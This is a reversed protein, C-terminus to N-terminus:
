SRRYKSKTYAPASGDAASVDSGCVSDSHSSRSARKAASFSRSSRAAARAASCRREDDEEERDDDPDNEHGVVSPQEVAEGRGGGGGARALPIPNPKPMSGRSIMAWNCTFCSDAVAVAFEDRAADKTFEAALEVQLVTAFLAAFLRAALRRGLKLLMPPSVLQDAEEADDEALSPGSLDVHSGSSSWSGSPCRSEFALSLLM